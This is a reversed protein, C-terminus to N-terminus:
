DAFFKISFVSMLLASLRATGLRLLNRWAYPRMLKRKDLVFDEDYPQNTYFLHKNVCAIKKAKSFVKRVDLAESDTWGDMINQEFFLSTRYLKNWSLSWHPTGQVQLKETLAKRASLIGSKRPGSRQIVVENEDIYKIGCLSIDADNVKIASHLREIAFIDLYDEANLFCVYEGYSAELGANKAAVLGKHEQHIVEVRYDKQAYQDCMYSCSDTSGDDVLIVELEEYSQSLVSDMCRALYKENKYVPIIISILDMIIGIKQM